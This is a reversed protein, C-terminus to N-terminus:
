EDSLRELLNTWKQEFKQINNRQMYKVLSYQTKSFNTIFGPQQREIMLLNRVISYFRNAHDNRDETYDYMVTANAGTEPLAALNPHIVLCGSKMAEIMAICSTEQWISPYAFIHSNKLADLVEANDKTGHYTINPHKKLAEFLPAYPKDRSEWGYIKFSSFVDLHINDFEKSLADFAPYLLELGRHPTTHYIFRIKDSSRDQYEGAELEVANEIVTCLSFPIKFRAIYQDRQWYSVFVFSDFKKWGEDKLIDNEPDEALDHAYFINKVDDYIERSRSFHIAFSQLLSAPVANILRERMMETGGKSNKSLNTDVVDGKYICSM